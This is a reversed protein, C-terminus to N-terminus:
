KVINSEIRKIKRRIGWGLKKLHFDVKRCISQSLELVLVSLHIWLEFFVEGVARQNTLFEIQKDM